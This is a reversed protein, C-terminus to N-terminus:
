VTWEFDSYWGTLTKRTKPAVTQNTYFSNTTFLTQTYFHTLNFVKFYKKSM